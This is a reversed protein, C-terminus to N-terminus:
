TGVFCGVRVQIIERDPFVGWTVANAHCPDANTYEAGTFNVAHYTLTPHAGLRDQTHRVHM